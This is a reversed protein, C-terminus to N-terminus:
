MMPAGRLLWIEGADNTCVKDFLHSFWDKDSVTKLVKAPLLKMKRPTCTTTQEMIRNASSDGESRTHTSSFYPRSIRGVVIRRKFIIDTRM